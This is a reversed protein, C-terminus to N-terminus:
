PKSVIVTDASVSGPARTRYREPSLVIQDILVGDERVQIRMRHSGSTAFTVTTPQNLWYAGNQWGWDRLSSATGDTALNVLLASTTNLPYAPSGNVLADSFQVWVSDNFKDDSTAKLRLWLRYPVGAAASFDVDVYHTPSALPLSTASWNRDPTALATAQPSAADNVLGWDGHRAASPIDSAYIVIDPATPTGPAGGPKPVITRDGSVPGPARDLWTVPSIVIQDIQVGDERTQVRIRQTGNATFWVEGTDNLWYAHRSWGWGISQCSACTWLNDVIADTTGIRYKAIGRADVSNSFQVFVSDNWKSDDTAKLRLWVRYPVGATATFTAEFYHSPTASAASTNSWGADDHRLAIGAAATSDAIKRWAGSMQSVDQAYIV